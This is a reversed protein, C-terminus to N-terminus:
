YTKKQLLLSTLSTDIYGTIHSLNPVPVILNMTIKTHKKWGKIQDYNTLSFYAEGFEKYSSDRKKLAHFIDGKPHYIQNLDSIIVGEM